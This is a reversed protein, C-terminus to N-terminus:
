AATAQRDRIVGDNNMHLECWHAYSDELEIPVNGTSQSWGRGVENQTFEFGNPM